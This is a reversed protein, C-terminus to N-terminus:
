VSRFDKDRMVPVLLPTPFIKDKFVFQAEKSGSAVVDVSENKRILCDSREKVLRERCESRGIVWNPNSRHRLRDLLKSRIENMDVIEKREKGWRYIRHAFISSDRHHLRKVVKPREASIAQQQTSPARTVQANLTRREPPHQM